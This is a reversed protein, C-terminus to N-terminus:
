SKCRKIAGIKEFEEMNKAREDLELQLFRSCTGDSSKGTSFILMNNNIIAYGESLKTKTQPTVMFFKSSPPTHGFVLLNAGFKSCMANGANIYVDEKKLYQEVPLSFGEHIRRSLLGELVFADRESYETGSVNEKDSGYVPGTHSFSIYSNVLALLPRQKIQQIYEKLAIAGKDRKIAREFPYVQCIEGKCATQLDKIWLHGLEHNGMLNIVADEGYKARLEDFRDLVKYSNDFEIGEKVEYDDPDCHIDDGLTLLYTGKGKAANEAYKKEFAEVVKELADMDGHLDTAVFLTGEDPFEVIKGTRKLKKEPKKEEKPEYLASKVPIDNIKEQVVAELGDNNEPIRQEITNKPNSLSIVEVPKYKEDLITNPTSNENKSEDSKLKSEPAPNYRGANRLTKGHSNFFENLKKVDAYEKRSYVKGDSDRIYQTHYCPMVNDLEQSPKGCPGVGYCVVGLEPIYLEGEKAYVRGDASCEADNFKEFEGEFKSKQPEQKQKTKEETEAM